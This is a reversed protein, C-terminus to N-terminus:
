FLIAKEVVMDLSTGNDAEFNIKTFLNKGGFDAIEMFYRANQGEAVCSFTYSETKVNGGGFSRTNIEHASINWGYEDFVGASFAEGYEASYAYIPFTYILCFSYAAAMDGSAYEGGTGAKLLEGDAGLWLETVTEEGEYEVSVEFKKTPVGEINEDGVYHQRYVWASEEGEDYSHWTFELAKFSLLVDVGPNDGEEFHFFEGELALEQDDPEEDPDDGPENGPDEGPEDGPEEGEGGSNDGPEDGPEEAGPKQLVGKILNCGALSFVMAMVLFLALWRKM